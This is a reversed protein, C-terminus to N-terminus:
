RAGAAASVRVRVFYPWEASTGRRSALGIGGTGDVGRDAPIQVSVKGDVTVVTLGERVDVSVHHREALTLRQQALLRGTHISVIQLSCCSVRVATEAVSGSRVVLNGNNGARLLGRVDATVTYDIWDATAYPAYTAALYSSADTAGPNRGDLISMDATARTREDWWRNADGLADPVDPPVATWAAVQGLLDAPRTNAFVEIREFLKGAAARRSVPTPESVKNTLAAPFSEFIQDRTANVSGRDYAPNADSFPYAFVEPTPLGHQAFDDFMARVDAAIRRRHEDVTEMRDSTPWASGTLLSGNVKRPGVAGRTHLDHTHGQFDWRGSSTMATVQRWSLYYPRYRGVRGSILFSVGHMGHKALIRDAYTYLGSTGDDFTLYVSRPPTEGGRLYAVFEDSTLTRYGAEALATLQEDLEVPSVVYRDTSHPRIDHYALVVPAARSPLGSALGRWTAVDDSSLDPNPADYQVGVDSRNAHMRWAVTFPAVVIVAAALWLPFRVLPL